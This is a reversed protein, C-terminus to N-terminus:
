PLDEPLPLEAGRADWWSYCVSKLYCLPQCLIPFLLLLLVPLLPPLLPPLLLLVPKVDVGAEMGFSEPTLTTHGRQLATSAGGALRKRQTQPWIM